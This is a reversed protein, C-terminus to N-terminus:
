LSCVTVLHEPDTTCMLVQVHGTLRLKVGNVPEDVLITSDTDKLVSIQSLLLSLDNVPPILPSRPKLYKKRFARNFLDGKVIWYDGNFRVAGIAMCSTRTTLLRGVPNVTVM